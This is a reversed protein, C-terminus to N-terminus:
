HGRKSFSIKGLLDDLAAREERKIRAGNKGVDYEARDENESRVARNRTEAAQQLRWTVAEDAIGTLEEEAEAIEATLGLQARLKALEETVTMRAAEADGARRV